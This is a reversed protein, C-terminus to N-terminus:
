YEVWFWLGPSGPIWAANSTHAYDCKYVKGNYTVLDGKAYSVFDPSWQPYTGSPNDPQDPNNPEEPDDPDDPDDPIIPDDPIYPTVPDTGNLEALYAGIKTAFNYNNSADWNISWTMVGRFGPYTHPPMYSGHRAGHVLTDLANIIIQPDVYGSGAGRTSSPLGLGVQDARLGYELPIAALATLFNESGQGYVNNDYGIMSGSNYYQTNVVTLIDKIALALKFYETSTNQMDLTQPAMTIISGKPIARLAKEVYKANLGHELDIDVGEFGYENMLSTICSAFKAASADSNIIVNGTEGGVSIIVHQGRAKAIAIDSIFQSKTFGLSTDLNFVVEGPTGTSEGFSVVIINYAEPVDKIRVAKAGNNFNQWYGTLIYTPLGEVEIVGNGIEPPIYPEEPETPDDPIIIDDGNGPNDPPNDPQTPASGKTVTYNVTNSLASGFKNTLKVKYEYTGNAKNSLAFTHSQASPTNDTLTVSQVVSGNEYLEALTGNQGWWMDMKMGFTAEGNWTTQALSPSAPVGTAKPSDPVNTSPTDGPNDIPPNDIPDDNGPNDIPDDNGPNDIPQEIPDTNVDFTYGDLMSDAIINVLDYGNKWDDGDLEWYMAGGLDNELIYNMKTQVTEADDYTYLEKTSRNYLWCAKSYPDRFKEWGSKKELNKIEFYPSQGGDGWTGKLKDGGTGFMGDAKGDGNVDWGGSVDSWGRSYFPIGVVIKSAPVGQRIFEKVTWDVNFKERIEADKNKENANKYLPAQHGVASEWAGHMDYTMLNVADLYKAYDGPNTVAIKDFGAGVAATLEYYKGDKAGQADLAERIAKLFLTFKEKDEIGGPAGKDYQDNQDPDRHIGPYEWDIDIGDLKNQVVFKVLNDAARKRSSESAAAAHFGHSKTWGGVSILVKVHPYKARYKRLLGLNGKYETDWSENDSVIENTAWSDYIEVSQDSPNLGIFAYNIHTLKDYPIHQPFYNGHAEYIGWECFYGTVRKPSKGSDSANSLARAEVTSVPKEQVSTEDVDVKCAMSFVAFAAIFALSFFKLKKM